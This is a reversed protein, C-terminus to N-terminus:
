HFGRPNRADAASRRSLLGGLRAMVDPHREYLPFGPVPADVTGGPTMVVQIMRTRIPYRGTLIGARAPSCVPAPSYYDTLRVGAAAVSDINPTRIARSGYSGLDGLGLDDFLILVINPRKAGPRPAAKTVAELYARKSAVRDADDVQEYRASALYIL